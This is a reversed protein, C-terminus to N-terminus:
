QWSYTPNGESDVSVTLTYTGEATPPAPFAPQVGRWGSTLGNNWYTYEWRYPYVSSSTIILHIAKTHNPGELVEVVVDCNQLGQPKDSWKAGGFYGMGIVANEDANVADCFQKATKNTGTPWDPNFPQYTTIAINGEGKLEQGNITKLEIDGGAAIDALLASLKNLHWELADKTDAPMKDTSGLTTEVNELIEALRDAM